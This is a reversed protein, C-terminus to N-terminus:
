QASAPAQLTKLLRANPRAFTHRCSGNGGALRFTLGSAEARSFVLHYCHQCFERVIGRGGARPHPL